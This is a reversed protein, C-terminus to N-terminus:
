LLAAAAADHSLRRGADAAVARQPATGTLIARRETSVLGEGGRGDGGNMCSSYHTYDGTNIKFQLLHM